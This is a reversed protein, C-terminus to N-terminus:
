YAQPYDYAQVFLDTKAILKLVAQLPADALHERAWQQLYWIQAKFKSASSAHYAFWVEDRLESWLPHTRCCAGIKLFAHLFCHIFTVTAFLTKWAKQTAEWGDINVTQPAYDAKVRQAEEKFVGYAQTLEKESAREAVSLGLVCGGGVTM